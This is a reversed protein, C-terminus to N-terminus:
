RNRGKNWHTNFRTYAPRKPRAMVIDPTEILEVRYIEGVEQAAEAKAFLEALEEFSVWRISAFLDVKM